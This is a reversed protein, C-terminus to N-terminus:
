YQWGAPCFYDTYIGCLGCERWKEYFSLDNVTHAYTRIGIAKLGALMEETLNAKPITVAWPKNEEAFSTLEDASVEGMRYLTLIVDDFGIDKAFAYDDYSYAQPIFRERLDGAATFLDALFPDNGCKADTVIRCEEHEALWELLMELDMLTLSAFTDAAMFEEYTLVGSGFLMREAMSDWDHLLVYKGDSTREFDLEIVTFGNDYAEDLAELSNTLRYGWKDGGAHAILTECVTPESTDDASASDSVPDTESSEVYEDADSSCSLLMFMVCIASILYKKMKM